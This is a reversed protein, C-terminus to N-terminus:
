APVPILDLVCGALTVAVDYEMVPSLLDIIFDLLSEPWDLELMLEILGFPLDIFLALVVEGFALAVELAIDPDFDVNLEASIGLSPIAFPPWGFDMQLLLELVADITPLPIDIDPNLYDLPLQLALPIFEGFNIVLNLGEFGELDACM